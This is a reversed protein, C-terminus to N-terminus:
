YRKLRIKRQIKGKKNEPVIPKEKVEKGDRKV